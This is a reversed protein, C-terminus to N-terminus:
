EAAKHFIDPNSRVAVRAMIRNQINHIDREMEQADSPHRDPLSLFENWLEATLWILKKEQDTMM